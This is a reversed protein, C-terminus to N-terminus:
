GFGHIHEYTAPASVQLKEDGFGHIHWEQGSERVTDAVIQIKLRKNELSPLRKPGLLTKEAVQPMKQQAAASSTCGMTASTPPFFLDSITLVELLKIKTEAVQAGM